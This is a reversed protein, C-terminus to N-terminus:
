LIRMGSGGVDVELLLFLMRSVKKSYVSELM